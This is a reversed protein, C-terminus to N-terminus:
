IEHGQLNIFFKFFFRIQQKMFPLFKTFGSGLVRLRWYMCEWKSREHLTNITQDLFTCLLKREYCQLMICFKFFFQSTTQFLVHPIHCIIQLASSLRVIPVLIPDKLGFYFFYSDLIWLPTMHWSLSSHHFIQLPILKHNWFQCSSNSLTQGLCEFAEFHEMKIHEKQAYYVNGSSIFYLPTIKWPVSSPYM